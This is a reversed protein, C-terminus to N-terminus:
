LIKAPAKLVETLKHSTRVLDQHYQFTKHHQIPQVKPAIETKRKTKRLKAIKM